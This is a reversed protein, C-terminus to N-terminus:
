NMYDKTNLWSPITEIWVNESELSLFKSFEFEATAEYYNERLVFCNWYFFNMFFHSINEHTYLTQYLLKHKSITTTTTNLDMGNNMSQWLWLGNEHCCHVDACLFSLNWIFMGVSPLSLIFDDKIKRRTVDSIPYTLILFLPFNELFVSCFQLSHWNESYPDEGSHIFENSRWYGGMQLNECEKGFILHEPWLAWRIELM